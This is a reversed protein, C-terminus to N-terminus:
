TESDVREMLLQECRALDEATDVDYSDAEEMFFPFVRERPVHRHQLFESASFIYIAGNPQVGRPLDQRRRYPADPAYMGALTGNEKVQYAKAPPHRPEFVSILGGAGHRHYLQLAESIHGAHRLPSTPQLFVLLFDEHGTRRAIEGIAHEIVPESGIKDGSLEVPREIIECGNSRGIDMARPDDTTIWTDSVQPSNNAARITWAIMPQGACLAVNKGSLGRSGSRAPILAYTKMHEGM